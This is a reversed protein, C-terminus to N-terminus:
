MFLLPKWKCPFNDHAVLLNDEFALYRFHPLQKYYSRDPKSRAGRDRRIANINLFINNKLKTIQEQTNAEIDFEITRVIKM